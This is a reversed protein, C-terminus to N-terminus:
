VVIPWSLLGHVLMWSVVAIKHAPVVTLSIRVGQNAPWIHFFVKGLLTCTIWGQSPLSPVAMGVFCRVKRTATYYKNSIVREDDDTRKKIGMAITKWEWAMVTFVTLHKPCSVLYKDKDSFWPFCLASCAENKSEHKSCLFVNGKICLWAKRFRILGLVLNLWLDKTWLDAMAHFASGSLRLTEGFGDVKLHLQFCDLCVLMFILKPFPPMTVCLM